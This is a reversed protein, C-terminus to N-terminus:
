LCAEAQHTQPSGGMFGPYPEIGEFAPTSPKTALDFSLPSERKQYSQCQTGHPNGAELTPPYLCTRDHPQAELERQLGVGFHTLYAIQDNLLPDQRRAAWINSKLAEFGFVYGHEIKYYIPRGARFEPGQVASRTQNSSGIVRNIIRGPYTNRLLHATKAPFDAGGSRGKECNSSWSRGIPPFEPMFFGEVNETPPLGKKMM